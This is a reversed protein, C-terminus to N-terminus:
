LIYDTKLKNVENQLLLKSVQRILEYYLHMLFNANM